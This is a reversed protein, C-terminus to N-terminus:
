LTTEGDTNLLQELAKRQKPDDISELVETEANEIVAQRQVKQEIRDAEAFTEKLKGKIEHLNDNRVGNVITYSGAYKRALQHDQYQGYFIYIGLLFLLSAAIGVIRRLTVTNTRTPQRPTEEIHGSLQQVAAFDLFMERYHLYEPLIHESRFYAYLSQEEGLTTEGDLFKDILLKIEKNEMREIAAIRRELSPHSAFLNALNGMSFNNTIKFSAFERDSDQLAIRGESIEQLRVLASKMYAPETIEAALKDAAFERRRSYASSVIKGFINAINRVIYYTAMSSAARRGRNNNGGMLFPLTAILGFASVFGELISSTLMDGNVVHSMEHALVGIIETENMSNLLGQSVAVMASNKSAGTAFANIDNSPYVGIEPLKQLGLKQSFLTITDVVLKEKESSVGGEGIMKINYARKVTAKSMMLSIFPTGFAFLILLPFYDLMRDGVFIYVLLFSAFLGMTVWTGLRFINLHPVKIIKNKIEALGKM